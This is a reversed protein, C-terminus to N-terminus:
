VCVCVCVCVCVVSEVVTFRAACACRPNILSYTCEIYLSLVSMGM